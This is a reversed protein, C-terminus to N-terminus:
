EHNSNADVTVDAKGTLVVHGDQNTTRLALTVLTLAGATETAEVTATSVLRDGPRVPVTFRVGVSRIADIGFWATVVRSSVAMTMMGHAMIGPHGAARAAPEDTHLVSFDGSAGAYQVIQTRTVEDCVVLERSEGVRPPAKV